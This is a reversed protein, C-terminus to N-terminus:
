EALWVKAMSEIHGPYWNEPIKASGREKFLEYFQNLNPLGGILDRGYLEKSFQLLSFLVCDAINSGNRSDMEGDSDEFRNDDEYYVEIKELARRCWELAIVATMPSQSELSSFLSTGKHCAFGFFTSAEDALALIDRTMAREDATSGRMPRLVSTGNGRNGESNRLSTSDCVDELYELIAASQKIFQGNGIVLIPVTGPPKGPAVLEMSTETASVTVPTIKLKFAQCQVTLSASEIIETAPSKLLGKEALYILIRRPYIGWTLVFLELDM